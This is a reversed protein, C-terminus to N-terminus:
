FQFSNRRPNRNGHSEPRAQGRRCHLRRPKAWRTKQPTCRRQNPHARIGCIHCRYLLPGTHKFGMPKIQFKYAGYGISWAEPMNAVTWAGGGGRRKYVGDARRWRPDLKETNWIVQPDPRILIYDGWRELREGGTADLLEYDSWNDCIWM